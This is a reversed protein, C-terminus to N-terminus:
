RALVVRRIGTKLHREGFNLLLGLSLGMAKLYCIVQSTHAPVLAPLAKLEVVLVSAVLVDVRGEGIALGKYKVSVVTQREYPAGRLSLEHCLADEYVAELFAPGLHRHVEIAADVVVTAWADVERDPAKLTGPMAQQQECRGM